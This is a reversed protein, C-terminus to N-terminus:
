RMLIELIKEKNEKNNPFLQIGEDLLMLTGGSEPLFPLDHTSFVICRGLAAEEWILDLAKKKHRIDLSATPEDLLWLKAKQALMQALCALQWEGGSLQTCNRGALHIIGMRELASLSRQAADPSHSPFWGGPLECAMAVFESVPIELSIRYHQPLWAVSKESLIINGQDPKRFGAITRLLTSKGCGNRGLLICPSNEPGIDFTLRSFITQEGYGAALEEIQIM